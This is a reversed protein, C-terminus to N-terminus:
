QRREGLREAAPNRQNTRDDDFGLEESRPTSAASRLAVASKQDAFGPRRKLPGSVIAAIAVSSSTSTTPM